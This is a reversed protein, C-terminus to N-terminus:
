NVTNRTLIEAEPLCSSFIKEFASTMKNSSASDQERSHETNKVMDKILIENIKIVKDKCMQLINDCDAREMNARLYVTKYRPNLVNSLYVMDVLDTRKMYGDLKKFAKGVAVRICFPLETRIACMGHKDLTSKTLDKTSCQELDKLYDYLYFYCILAESSTSTPQNFGETFVMFPKVIDQKLSIMEWELKTSCLDSDRSMEIGQPYSSGLDILKHRIDLSADRFNANLFETLELKYDL